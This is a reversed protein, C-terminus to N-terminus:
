YTKGRNFDYRVDGGMAFERKKRKLTNNRGKLTNLLSTPNQEDDSLAQFLADEIAKATEETIGPFSEKPKPKTKGKKKHRASFGSTRRLKVPAQMPNEELEVV